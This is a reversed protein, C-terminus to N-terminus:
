AAPHPCPVLYQGACHVLPRRENFACDRIEAVFIGHDDADYYTVHECAFWASCHGQIPLGLEPHTSWEPGSVDPAAQAEARRMLPAQDDALIHIAFSPAAKFDAFRPAAKDLSWLVLPPDLSLSNFACARTVIVEGGGKTAYVLVVGTAFQRFAQQLLGEDVRVARMPGAAMTERGLNWYPRAPDNGRTPDYLESSADM